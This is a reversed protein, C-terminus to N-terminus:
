PSLLSKESMREILSQDIFQYTMYLDKKRAQGTDPILIGWNLQVKLVQLHVLQDLRSHTQVGLALLKACLVEEIDYHAVLQGRFGILTKEVQSIGVQVRIFVPCKYKTHSTWVEAGKHLRNGSM